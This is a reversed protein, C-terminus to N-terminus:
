VAFIKVSAAGSASSAGTHSFYLKLIVMVNLPIEMAAAGGTLTIVDADTANLKVTCTIDSSLRLFRAPGVADKRGLATLAASIDVEQNVAGVNVTATRNYYTTSLNAGERVMLIDFM